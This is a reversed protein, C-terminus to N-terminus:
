TREFCHLSGTRLFGTAIYAHIVPGALRADALLARRWWRLGVRALWSTPIPVMAGVAGAYMVSFWAVALAGHRADALSLPSANRHPCESRFLM